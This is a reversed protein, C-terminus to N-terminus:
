RLLSAVSKLQMILINLENLIDMMITKNQINGKVRMFANNADM